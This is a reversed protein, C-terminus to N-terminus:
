RKGTEPHKSPPIVSYAGKGNGVHFEIGDVDIVAEKPIRKPRVFLRHKGRKSRWTPTDPIEGGFMAQLADEAEPHRM